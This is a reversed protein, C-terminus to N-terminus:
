ARGLIAVLVASIQMFLYSFVILVVLTKIFRTNDDINILSNFDIYPSIDFSVTTPKDYLDIYLRELLLTTNSPVNCIRSEYEKSVKIINKIAQPILPGLEDIMKNLKIREDNSMDLVNLNDNGVISFILRGIQLTKDAVGTSCVSKGLNLLNMCENVDNTKITVIKRLKRRLYHFDESQFESLSAYSAIRVQIENDGENTNLKDNVCAEFTSDAGIGSLLQSFSAVAGSGFGGSGSGGSGSGTIAPNGIMNELFDYVEEIVIHNPGYNGPGSVYEGQQTVIGNDDSIEPSWCRGLMQPDSSICKSNVNQPDLPECGSSCSVSGDDNLTSDERVCDSSDLQVLSGSCATITGRGSNIDGRLSAYDPEGNLMYETPLVQTLTGPIRQGVLHLLESDTLGRGASLWFDGQDTRWDINQLYNMNINREQQSQWWVPIETDDGGSFPVMSSAPVSNSPNNECMEYLGRSKLDAVTGMIPPDRYLDSTPDESGDAPDPCERCTNGDIYHSAPVSVGGTSLKTTPCINFCVQNFQSTGLGTSDVSASSDTAQIYLWDTYDTDVVGSSSNYNPCSTRGTEPIFPGSM